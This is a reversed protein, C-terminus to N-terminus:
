AFAGAQLNTDLHEWKAPFSRLGSEVKRLYNYSCGLKKALVKVSLGSAERALRLERGSLTRCSSCRGCLWGSVLLSCGVSSADGAAIVGLCKVCKVADM